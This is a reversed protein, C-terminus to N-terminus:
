LQYGIGLYPKLEFAKFDTPAYSALGAAKLKPKWCYEVRAGAKVFIDNAVDLKVGFDGGVALGSYSMQLSVGELDDQWINTDGGIFEMIDFVIRAVEGANIALRAANWSVGLTGYVEVNDLLSYKYTPGAFFSTADKLEFATPLLQAVSDFVTAPNSTVAIALPTPLFISADVTFGFDGQIFYTYSGNLGVAKGDLKLKITDAEIVKPDGGGLISSLDLYVDDFTIVSLHNRYTGSVSTWSEASYAPVVICLLLVILALGAKGRRM